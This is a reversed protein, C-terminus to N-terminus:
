AAPKSFERNDCVDPILTRVLGPLNDIPVHALIYNAYTYNLTNIIDDLSIQCSMKALDEIDSTKIIFPSYVAPCKEKYFIEPLFDEPLIKKNNIMVFHDNLKDVYDILKIRSKKILQEKVQKANYNPNLKFTVCEGIDLQFIPNDSNTTLGKRVINPKYYKPLGNLLERYSKKFVKQETGAHNDIEILQQLFIRLTTLDKVKLLAEVLELSFVIYGRGGKKATKFYSEYEKLIVNIFGRQDSSIYDIYGYKKLYGLNSVVTKRDCGLINKLHSVSLNFIHGFRNPHMMHLVILLKIGNTKLTASYGTKTGYKNKDNIYRLREETCVTTVRHPCNACKYEVEILEPHNPQHCYFQKLSFTPCEFCGSAKEDLKSIEVYEIEKRNKQLGIANKLVLKGISAFREMYIVQRLKIM